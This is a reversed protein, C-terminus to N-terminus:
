AQIKTLFSSYSTPWSISYSNLIANLKPIDLIMHCCNLIFLTPSYTQPYENWDVINKKSMIRSSPLQTYDNNGVIKKCINIKIQTNSGM